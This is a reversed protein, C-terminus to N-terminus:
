CGTALCKNRIIFRSKHDFTKYREPVEAWTHIEAWVTRLPVQTDEYIKILRDVLSLELNKTWAQWILKKEEENPAPARGRKELGFVCRWFKFKEVSMGFLSIMMAKPAEYQILKKVRSMEDLSCSIENIVDSFLDHDIKVEINTKMFRSAQSMLRDFGIANQQCIAQIESNSFGLKKLSLMDQNLVARRAKDKVLDNTEKDTFSFSNIELDEKM